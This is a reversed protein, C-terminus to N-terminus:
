PDFLPMNSILILGVLSQSSFSCNFRYFIRTKVTLSMSKIITAVAVGSLSAGEVAVM